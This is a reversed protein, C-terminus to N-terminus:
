DACQIIKEKRGARALSSFAEKDEGFHTLWNFIEDAIQLERDPYETEDWIASGDEVYNATTGRFQFKLTLDEFKKGDRLFRLVHDQIAFAQVAKLGSRLAPLPQAALFKPYEKKPTSCNM